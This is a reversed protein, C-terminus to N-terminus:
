LPLGNLWRQFMFFGAEPKYQPVMHGAGAVTTFTLGGEYETVHGGVQQGYANSYKWTRWDPGRPRAQLVRKIFYENGTYPCAADNDGNYVLIRYGAGMLYQYEGQMSQRNKV